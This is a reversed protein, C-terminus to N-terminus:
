VQEGGNEEPIVGAGSVFGLTQALQFGLASEQQFTEEKVTARM